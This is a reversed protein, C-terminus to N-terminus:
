SNTEHPVGAKLTAVETELNTIKSSQSQVGFYFAIVVSYVTTFDQPVSEKTVLYCFTGTLCITVISKVSILAALRNLFKEM